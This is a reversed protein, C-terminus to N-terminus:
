CFLSSNTLLLDAFLAGGCGGVLWGANFESGSKPTQLNELLEGQPAKKQSFWARGYLWSCVSLRQM